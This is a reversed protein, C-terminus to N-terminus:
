PLRWVWENPRKGSRVRLRKKARKLTTPALGAAEAAAKVQTAPLPGDALLETLFDAAEELQSPHRPPMPPPGFHLGEDDIRFGLPDPPLALNNKIISLRRNDLNTPDPLDLGWILRPVQSIVSSGLLRDLSLERDFSTRKRLHHTLLVPINIRRALLALEELVMRIVRPGSSGAILGSLSDFIVLRVTDLMAPRLLNLNAQKRNFSGKPGALKFNEMPDGDPVVIQTPDLGWNKLRELNARQGGESEVWLIKGPRATFPTGDPWPRGDIYPATLHLCLSSKGAGAESAVVTLFGRPLWGPWDWQVPTQVQDLDSWTTSTHSSVSALRDLLKDLQQLPAPKLKM